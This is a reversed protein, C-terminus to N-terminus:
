LGNVEQVRAGLSTLGERLVEAAREVVEEAEGLSEASAQIHIKLVPETLEGGSPHSKVYVRPSVKMAREVVPAASSEPVGVSVLFKEALTLPPGRERLLPELHDEFIAKMEAPVGPLAVALVDGLEILVGPATGVRNPLPRSGEPMMALKLRHETLPLGRASYKERVMNLADENQVLPLGFARAMCSVTMDDFTPGLGGTSIVVGCGLDVATRFAWEIDGCRDRVVLGVRVEYGLVTLRRALWTQNTNVTRGILLENGVSILGASHRRHIAM